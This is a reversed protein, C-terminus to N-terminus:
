SINFYIICNNEADTNEDQKVPKKPKHKDSQVNKESKENKESKMSQGQVPKQVGKQVQNPNQKHQTGENKQFHQKHDKVKLDKNKPVLSVERNEEAEFTGMVPNELDDDGNIETTRATASKKLNKKDRLTKKAIFKDNINTQDFVSYNVHLRDREQAM